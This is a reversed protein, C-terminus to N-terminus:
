LKGKRNGTFLFIIYRFGGPRVGLYDFADEYFVGVVRRSAFSSFPNAGVSPIVPCAREESVDNSFLMRSLPRGGFIRLNELKECDRM